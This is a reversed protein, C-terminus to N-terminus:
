SRKVMNRSIGEDAERTRSWGISSFAVIRRADKERSVVDTTKTTKQPEASAVIGSVGGVAVLAAIAVWRCSTAVFFRHRM